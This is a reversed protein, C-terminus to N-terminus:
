SRQIYTPRYKIFNSISYTISLWVFFIITNTISNKFSFQEYLFLPTLIGFVILYSFTFGVIESKAEFDLRKGSFFAFLVGLTVMVATLINYKAMAGDNGGSTSLYLIVMMFIILVAIFIGTTASIKNNSTVSETNNEDKSIETYNTQSATPKVPSERKVFLHSFIKTFLYWFYFMLIVTFTIMPDNPKNLITDKIIGFYSGALIAGIGGTTIADAIPGTRFSPIILFVISIVSLLLCGLFILYIKNM